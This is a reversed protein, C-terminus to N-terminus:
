WFFLFLNVVQIGLFAVAWKATGGFNMLVDTIGAGIRYIVTNKFFTRLKIRAAITLIGALCILASGMITAAGIPLLWILQPASFTVGVSWVDAYDYYLSFIDEIATYGVSVVFVLAVIAMGFYLDTPIHDQLNPLIEDTGTRHGEVCVLYVMLILMILPSVIVTPVFLSKFEHLGWYMGGDMGPEPVVYRECVSMYQWGVVTLGLIAAFAAFLFIATIKVALNKTM